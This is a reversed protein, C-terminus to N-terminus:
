EKRSEHQEVYARLAENIHTQYGRGRPHRKFWDVVDADIRLTLQRKVPRYFRARRASSWDTIEPAESMDIRGDPMRDLAELEAQQRPTLHETRPKRM